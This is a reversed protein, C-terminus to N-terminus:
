AVYSDWNAWCHLVVHWWLLSYMSWLSGWIEMKFDVEHNYLSAQICQVVAAAEGHLLQMSSSFIWGLINNLPFFIVAYKKM